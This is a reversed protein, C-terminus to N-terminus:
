NLKAAGCVANVDCSMCKAKEPSPTFDRKRLLDAAQIVAREAKKVAEDSIDVTHRTTTSMDHIFAAGVTLGERRGADAYVQL